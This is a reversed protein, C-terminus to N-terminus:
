GGCFGAVRESMVVLFAAYRHGGVWGCMEVDHLLALHVADAPEDGFGCPMQSVGFLATVVYRVVSVNFKWVAMGVAVDWIMLESEVIVAHVINLDVASDGVVAVVYPSKIGSVM